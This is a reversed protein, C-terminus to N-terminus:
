GERATLGGAERLVLVKHRLSKFGYAIAKASFGSRIEVQDTPLLELVRDVPSARGPDPPLKVLATMPTALLRSSVVTYLLAATRLDGGYGHRRLMASLAAFVNESFAIPKAANLRAEGQEATLHPEAYPRKLVRLLADRLPRQVDSM